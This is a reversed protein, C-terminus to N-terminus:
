LLWHQLFGVKTKVGPHANTHRQRRRQTCLLMKLLLLLENESLRVRQLFTAAFLLILLLGLLVKSLKFQCKRVLVIFFRHPFRLKNQGQNGKLDPM